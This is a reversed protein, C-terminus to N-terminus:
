LCIKHYSIGNRKLAEEERSQCTFILVQKRNRELWRLVASLRRDDYCVFADDFVVPFEEEHLIEAAAMRLAFYIQELTGKSVQDMTIIRGEVLLQVRMADDVWVKEYVGETVECLIESVRCNLRQGFRGQMEKSLQNMREAAIEYARRHKELEKIDDGVEDMEDLQESLNEYQVKKERYEERLREVQWRLKETDAEMKKQEQTKEEDEAKKKRGDKMRNWLHMGEALAIVITILFNWPRKFLIFSLIVALLMALLVAPHVRWNSFVGKGAEEEAAKRLEERRKGCSEMRDNWADEAQQLDKELRHLDRWVYSIELEIKERKEQKQRGHERIAKETEKKRAGLLELAASLNMEGNGTAYYNAAYDKLRASLAATTAARMQGVAVTNEFDADTMGDLLVDLDGHELSLQEGDDECFLLASKAYKDFHRELRFNRRGCTFRIVGAYYNPNEWPEYRSFTDNAAARGRGREMGFLMGKLFTHVTTKGAGNEGYILNMGDSFRINKNSFKGFNELVLEKIEM